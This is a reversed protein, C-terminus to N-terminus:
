DGTPEAATTTPLAISSSLETVADQLKVVKNNTNKVQLQITKLDVNLRGIDAQIQKAGVHTKLFLITFGLVAVAILAMHFWMSNLLKTSSFSVPQVTKAPKFEVAKPKAEAM